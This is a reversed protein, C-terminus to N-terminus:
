LFNVKSCTFNPAMAPNKASSHGGGEGVGGGGGEGEEKAMVIIPIM